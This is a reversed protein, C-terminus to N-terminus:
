DLTRSFNFPSFTKFFKFFIFKATKAQDNTRKSTRAQGAKASWPGKVVACLSLQISEEISFKTDGPNTGEGGFGKAEM